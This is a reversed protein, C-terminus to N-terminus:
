SLIFGLYKSSRGAATYLSKQVEEIDINECIDGVDVLVTNFTSGQAKHVTISYGFSIEAYLEKIKKHYIEWLRSTLKETKFKKFFFEIHEKIVNLMSYYDELCDRHISQVIFTRNQYILSQDNHIKEVTFTNIKFKSQYKSIKKIIINYSKEIATKPKDILISLWDFLEREESSINLIKIMDSTYFGTGDDPSTYYNNFIAYDGVIYNNIDSTNHVHKRIIANYNHATSNKWTLIIPIDGKSLSKAFFKFWSTNIYDNKNHYLNFTKNSRKRNHIPLLLKALSDSQNWKRIIACVDKIDVSKTRMIEDLIVHYYYDEPVNKFVLSIKEKVPPLQMHDGMFILKIPYLEMYKNLETMMDKSIMSCEDIVILKNEMQKLFNSEKISKFVKTGDEAMIIPRFELLKHITMFSMKLCMSTQDTPSLDKKIDSEIVKLAQHTPACIFVHDMKNNILLQDIIKSMLFTKGAGAYGFLYFIRDTDQSIFNNIKNITIQQKENFIISSM